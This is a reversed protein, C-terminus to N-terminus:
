NQFISVTQASIKSSPKTQVDLRSSQVGLQAFMDVVENLNTEYESQVRGNRRGGEIEAPVESIIDYHVIKKSRESAELLHRLDREFDVHNRNFLIVLSPVPAPPLAPAAAVDKTDAKAAAKGAPAVSLDKANSGDAHEAKDKDLAAKEAASARGSKARHAASREKLLERAKDEVKKDAALQEIPVTDAGPVGIDGIDAAAPYACLCLACAGAGALLRGRLM